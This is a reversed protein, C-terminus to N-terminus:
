RLRAMRRRCHALATGLYKQVMHTSIKLHDAIQEYSLGHQYKMFVVVRCKASLQALVERLRSVRTETDFLEEFGPGSACEYGVQSSDYDVRTSERRARLSHEYALNRAVTFLYGEPNRLADEDKVRLMRLYVEQVLDAADHEAKVRRVFFAQLANSQQAFLREVMTKKAEEMDGPLNDATRRSESYM